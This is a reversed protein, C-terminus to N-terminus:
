REHHGALMSRLQPAAELAPTHARQPLPVSTPDRQPLPPPLPLPPPSVEEEGTRQSCKHSSPM